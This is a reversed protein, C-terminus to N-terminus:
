VAALAQKFGDLLQLGTDRGFFAMANEYVTLQLADRDGRPLREYDEPLHVYGIYDGTQSAVAGARYGHQEISQRAALGVGAGLDAPFGTFILQGVRLVPVVTGARDPMTRRGFNRAYVRLPTLAADLWALRAPLLRPLTFNLPVDAEAFAVVPEDTLPEAAAIAREVQERMLRNVLALHVDLEMPGEPFLVNVGGVPGVVFMAEDGEAEFSKTLEGPWCASATNYARESVIVPHAGFNILRLNKRGRQVTTVTLRRDVPGDPHRRNWNLGVTEVAGHRLTAPQLDRAAAIVAAAIKETLGALLAPRYGGMFLRASEGAVYGGAASHTHTASLLLGDLNVGATR